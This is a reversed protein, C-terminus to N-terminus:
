SPYEFNAISIQYNRQTRSMCELQASMYIHSFTDAQVEVSYKLNLKEFFHFCLKTNVCTNIFKQKEKTKNGSTFDHLLDALHKYRNVTLQYLTVDSMSSITAVFKGIEDLGIVPLYEQKVIEDNLSLQENGKYWYM